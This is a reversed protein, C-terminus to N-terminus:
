CVRLEAPSPVSVCVWLFACLQAHMRTPTRTLSMRKRIEFGWTWFLNLCIEMMEDEGNSSKNLHDAHPFCCCVQLMEAEEHQINCDAGRLAASIYKRGLDFTNASMDVGTYSALRTQLFSSGLLMRALHEADGCGLDLMSFKGQLPPTGDCPPSRPVDWFQSSSRIDTIQCILLAIGTQMWRMTCYCPEREFLSLHAFTRVGMRTCVLVGQGRVCKWVHCCHWSQYINTGTVVLCGRFVCMYAKRRSFLPMMDLRGASAVLEMASAACRSPGRWISEYAITCFNTTCTIMNRCVLWFLVFELSHFAVALRACLCVCSVCGMTLFMSAM